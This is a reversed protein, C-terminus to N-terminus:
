TRGDERWKVGRGEQGRGVVEEMWKVGEEMWKVGGGEREEGRGKKGGGMRGREREDGRGNEGEGKRRGRVAGMLHLPGRPLVM